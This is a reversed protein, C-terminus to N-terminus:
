AADSRRIIPAAPISRSSLIPPVGSTPRLIVDGHGIVRKQGAEVEVQQDRQVGQEGLAAHRAGGLPQVEALRRQAGRQRPQAVVEVVRDQRAAAVGVLERREGQPEGLVRRDSQIGRAAHELALRRPRRVLRRALERDVARVVAEGRDAGGDRADRRARCRTHAEAEHEVVRRDDVVGGVAQARDVRHDNGM